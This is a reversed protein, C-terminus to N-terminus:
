CSCASLSHSLSLPLSYSLSLALSYSLSLSFSLTLILSLSRSRALSRPLSPALSRPLSHSPPLSLALSSVLLMGGALLLWFHVWVRGCIGLVRGAEDSLYGGLSRAFVNVLQIIGAQAPPGRAFM